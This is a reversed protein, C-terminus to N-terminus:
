CFSFKCRSFVVNGGESVTPLVADSRTVTVSHGSFKDALAITEGKSVPINGKKINKSCGAERQYSKKRSPTMPAANRIWLSM